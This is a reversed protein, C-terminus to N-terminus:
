KLLENLEAGDIKFRHRSMIEKKLTENGAAAVPLKKAEAILKKLEKGTVKELKEQKMIDSASGKRKAMIKLIEEVAQKTIAGKKYETFLENLRASEISDLDFGARKLETFKQLITNAIFQPDAGSEKVVEKYLPLRPSLMLRKALEASGAQATLQKEEKEMDPAEEKAKDLMAKSVATPVIDTEPYMRSGGPLPRMFKTTFKEASFVSRTEVPIGVLAYSARDSAISAAERAKDRPGALLIFADESDPKIQLEALLAAQEEKTIGYQLLDEDSHIIGKLGAVKAYDSIETGLRRSPNVETGLSDKFKELKFAFAASGGKQLQEKIIKAGTKAFIRTVEVPAHVKAGRKKLKDRIELLKQQRLVENEIFKDMNELEQFGKMEIRAGGRISVNVDQRISGIGRQVKGTLRLLMGLYLAVEKAQSPSAITSDTDIEILPIGLRDTAYTASLESNEVIGSSEEELSMIPIKIEKGNLTIAGDLGVLLTRQFASPDSGDVVGKRMPQIEEPIKMNLSKAIALSTALAEMNINHPPEEDVDVLCTSDEFVQYSFKRNRMGEFKTARDIKGLEGAVARQFRDVSNTPKQQSDMSAKCSCFLKESTALRQHIELGCMFGMKGYIESEDTM